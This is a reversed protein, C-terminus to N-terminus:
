AHVTEKGKYIGNDSSSRAPNNILLRLGARQPLTDIM